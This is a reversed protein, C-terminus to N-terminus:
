VPFSSRSRLARATVGPGEHQLLAQGIFETYAPPIAQTLEATTMWDIGMAEAWLEHGGGNGYVQVVTSAKTRDRHMGSRGFSTWYRPERQLHHACPLAMVAFSCEFLRHRRVALGFSSGCLRIPSRLASAGEVNEIVYPLRAALLRERVDDILDRHRSPRGLVANVAGLGKINAQCPPSAHVADFGGLPFTMADVQIFEFPYNPQPEIDVGVVEFGALSYGMGAGGAGCFLDLLRV